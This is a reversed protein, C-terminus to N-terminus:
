STSNAAGKRFAAPRYVALAIRGEIRVTIKNTIVNDRDQDFFEVIANSRIFMGAGAFFDGVVYDNSNLATTRFVPVGAIYIQGNQIAVLSAPLDYEGSGVAKNLLINYYDKPRVWVASTMYKAEEIDSIDKVIREILPGVTNTSQVANRWIGDLNTSTNDGYILQADEADLYMEMMRAGLFSRMFSLDDLAKRSIRLWAAIFQADVTVEEAERDVQPKTANEAVTTPVGNGGTERLFTISGKDMTGVPLLPRIHQKTNPLMNIGPIVTTNAAMLGTINGTGMDAAAKIEEPTFLEWQAIRGPSRDAFKKITDWQDTILQDFKQIASKVAKPKTSHSQSQADLKEIYSNLIQLRAETESLSTKLAKLEESTDPLAKIQDTLDDVQKKHAKQAKEAESKLSLVANNITELTATPVGGGDAALADRMLIQQPSMFIRRM